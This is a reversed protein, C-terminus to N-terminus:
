LRNYLIRELRHYAVVLTALEDEANGLIETVFDTLWTRESARVSTTPHRLRKTQKNKEKWFKTRNLKNM